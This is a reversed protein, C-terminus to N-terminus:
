CFDATLNIRIIDGLLTLTPELQSLYLHNTERFLLRFDWIEFELKWIIDLNSIGIVLVNRDSVLNERM